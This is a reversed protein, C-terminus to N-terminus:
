TYRNKKDKPTDIERAISKKYMNGNSKKIINWYIFVGLHTQQYTHTDRDDNIYTVNPKIKHYENHRVLFRTRAFLLALLSCLSFFIHTYSFCPSRHDYSVYMFNIIFWKPRARKKRWKSKFTHRKRRAKKQRRRRRREWIGKMRNKNKERNFKSVFSSKLSFNQLSINLLWQSRRLFFFGRGFFFFCFIWVTWPIRYMIITEALRKAGM